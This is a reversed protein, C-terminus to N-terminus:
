QTGVTPRASHKASSVRRRPAQLHTWVPCLFPILLLRIQQRPCPPLFPREPSAVSLSLGSSSFSCGPPCCLVKWFRPHPHSCTCFGQPTHTSPFARRRSFSRSPSWHSQLVPHLHALPLCLRPPYSRALGCPGQVSIGNRYTGLKSLLSPSYFPFANSTSKLSEVFTMNVSTRVPPKMLPPSGPSCVQAQSAATYKVHDGRGTIPGETSPMPKGEHMM